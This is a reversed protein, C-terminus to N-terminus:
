GGGCMKPPFRREPRVTLHSNDALTNHVFHAYRLGDVVYAEVQPIRFWRLFSFCSRTSM